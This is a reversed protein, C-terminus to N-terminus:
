VLIVIPQLSGAERWQGIGVLAGSPALLRCRDPRDAALGIFEGTRLRNGQRARKEGAETLIVAPMGPLLRELPLVWTRAESGAAAIDALPRAGDISFEGVRTRRLAHLHAGCGLRVGLDHALSRVYFGSSCVVRLEAVDDTYDRLELTRVTVEVPEIDVPKRTRALRYARVGAVKKASFAPPQQLYTGRFGNLADAIAAADAPPTGQTKLAAGEADYTATVAGFRVQAIYEKEVATLYSALRTARGIVLVLVGTALPDLTGTHGVRPTNLARRVIAVVDHSTPGAPKDVVLVGNPPPEPSM